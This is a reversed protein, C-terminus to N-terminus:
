PLSQPAPSLPNQLRAVMESLILYDRVYRPERELKKALSLTGACVTTHDRGGSLRGISPTSLDTYERALRWVMQRALIIHGFRRDGDIDEVPVGYYGSVAKKIAAFSVRTTM